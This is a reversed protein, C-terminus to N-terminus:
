NPDTIPYRVIVIGSAGAGAVTASSGFGGGGGGGTNALANANETAASGSSGPGMGDGGGGLGGTSGSPGTYSGGGGGGAYYTAVGSISYSAGNGGNGPANSSTNANQGVESAGGGGGGSSAAKGVGGAFGQGPTGTGGVGGPAVWASSGGGGSGGTLGDQGAAIGGGGGGGISVLTGALSSNTGSQGRAGGSVPLGGTGIVVSKTGATFGTNGYLLGGAGGGGGQDTGGAGGGAVVLYEFSNITGISIVDLSSSSLFTHVKYTVGNVVIETETGGTAVIPEFSSAGLWLAVTTSESTGFSNLDLINKKDAGIATPTDTLFTWGSPFTLSRQVTDGELYITKKVGSTYNSATFTVDGTVARQELEIGDSFDLVISDSTITKAPLAEYSDGQVGQPGTEGQLGQIGQEGQIGQPGTAGTAGQLALPFWYASVESPVDGVGPDGSAFWSSNNYYVADNNVYDTNSDWTGQWNIGTAGTPGVAGTEGQIGQPGQPGQPGTEGQIGQEGQPGQPGTAGDAGDAGDAGAPGTEGQPGTAGTAGDAGDAGILSTLWEAETGIFGNSVAIDYASDGDAGAGGGGGAAVWSVGDYISLVQTSDNFWIPTSSGDLPESLGIHVATRDDGLTDILDVFSASLLRQGPGFLTKLEGLTKIAM